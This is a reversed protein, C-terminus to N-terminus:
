LDGKIRNFQKRTTFRTFQRQCVNGERAFKYVEKQITPLFGLKFNWEMANLTYFHSFVQTTILFYCFLLM